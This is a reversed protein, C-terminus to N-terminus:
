PVIPVEFATKRPQRKVTRSRDCKQCAEGAIHEYGSEFLCDEAAGPYSFQEAMKPKRLIMDSIHNRIQNGENLHQAKLKKAAMSLVPPPNNLHGTLEFKDSGHRKGRDFQLVGGSTGSPESVVVDGLRIDDKGNDGPVGGAIGVLLGFRVNPFDNMLQNAVVGSDNNGISPLAAIVVNHQGLEGLIYANHDRTSPIDDHIADLMARLPALEIGLPVLCAISYDDRSLRAPKSSTPICDDSDIRPRKRPSYTNVDYMCIDETM